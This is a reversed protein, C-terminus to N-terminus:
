RQLKVSQIFDSALFDTSGGNEDFFERMSKALEKDSFEPLANHFVYFLETLKKLNDYYDEEFMYPSSCFNEVILVSAGIGLEVMGVASVTEQQFVALEGAQKPTLTLGYRKTENNLAFLETSIKELPSVVGGIITLKNEAM